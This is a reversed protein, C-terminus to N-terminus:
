IWTISWYWWCRFCNITSIFITFRFCLSYRFLLLLLAITHFLIVTSLFVFFFLSSIPLLIFISKNDITNTKKERIQKNIELSNSWRFYFGINRKSLFSLFVFFYVRRKMKNNDDDGVQRAPTDIREDRKKEPQQNREIKTKIDKKKERRMNKYMNQKNMKLMVFYNWRYLRFSLFCICISVFYLGVNNNLQRGAVLFFKGHWIINDKIDTKEKTIRIRNM